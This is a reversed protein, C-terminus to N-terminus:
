DPCKRGHHRVRDIAIAHSGVLARIREIQELNPVVRPEEPKTFYYAWVLCALLYALMDLLGIPSYPPLRYQAIMTTVTVDVCLYLLFGAAIGYVRHRWPIGFYKAFIVIFGFVGCLVWSVVQDMARAFTMWATAQAGPFRVAFTVAVLAVAIIAQLFHPITQKPLTSFPHFLVHFVELVLAVLIVLEPPYTAWFFIQLQHAHYTAVHFGVLHRVVEFTVIASFAPYERYAKREILIAWVYGLAIIIAVWIGLLLPRSYLNM